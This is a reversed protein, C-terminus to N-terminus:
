CCSIAAGGKCGAINDHSSKGTSESRQLRQYIQPLDACPFGKKGARVCNKESGQQITVYTKDTWDMRISNGGLREVEAVRFEVLRDM